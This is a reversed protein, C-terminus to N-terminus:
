PDSSPPPLPMWTRPLTFPLFIMQGNIMGGDVVWHKATAVVGNWPTSSGSSGTMTTTSSSSVQIGEMFDQVYLWVIDMDELYSEYTRGWTMTRAVVIKPALTM